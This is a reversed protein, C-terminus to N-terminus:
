QFFLTSLSFVSSTILLKLKKLDFNQQGDNSISCFKNTSNVAHGIIGNSVVESFEFVCKQILLLLSKKIELILFMQIKKLILAMM